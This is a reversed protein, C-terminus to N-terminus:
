KMANIKDKWVFNMYQKMLDYESQYKATLEKNTDILSQKVDPEINSDGAVHSRIEELITVIELVKHKHAEFMMMAADTYLKESIVDKTKAFAEMVDSYHEYLAIKEQVISILELVKSEMPQKM